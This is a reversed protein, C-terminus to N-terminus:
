RGAESETRQLEEVDHCWSVEYADAMRNLARLALARWSEAAANAAEIAVLGAEDTAECRQKWEEARAEAALGRQSIHDHNLIERLHDREDQVERLHRAYDNLREELADVDEPSTLDYEEEFSPWKGYDIVVATGDSRRSIHWEQGEAQETM